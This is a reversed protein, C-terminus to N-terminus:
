QNLQFRLRDGAFIKVLNTDLQGTTILDANIGNPTIATNWIWDENENKQSATFIGDCRFNV